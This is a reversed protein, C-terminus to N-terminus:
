GIGLAGITAVTLARLLVVALVMQALPLVYKLKVRMARRHDANM